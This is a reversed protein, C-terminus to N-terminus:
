GMAAPGRARVVETGHVQHVTAWAPGIGLQNSVSIRSERDGRLDGEGADTFAAGRWGPGSIM